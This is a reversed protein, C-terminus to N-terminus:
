RTCIRGGNLSALVLGSSPFVRLFRRTLSIVFRSVSSLCQAASRSKTSHLSFPLACFCVIVWLYRLMRDLYPIDRWFCMAIKVIFNWLPNKCCYWPFVKCHVTNEESNWPKSVIGNKKQWSISYMNFFRVIRVKRLIVLKYRAITFILLFRFQSIFIWM